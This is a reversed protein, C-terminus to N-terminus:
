KCINPREKCLTDLRTQAETSGLKLAKTYWEFAKRFDQIDKDYIYGLNFHVVRDGKKAAKTFWEVAKKFNQKVGKGHHYMIGLNNQARVSGKKAAKEYWYLAKKFDQKVGNGHHYMSGLNNQALSFGKKAAKEYWYFADAYNKENKYMFGLNNQASVSGKKAAEKFWYFAEASNKKVGKGHLYMLGLRNQAWVNEQNASKKYWEFAKKLDKEIGRGLRYMNGLSYQAKENGFKASEEFLEFAKKLDQKVGHGNVYSAGLNYKKIAAEREAKDKKLKENYSQVNLTPQVENIIKYDYKKEKYSLGDLLLYDNTIKFNMRINDTLMNEKFVKAEEIPVLIYGTFVFNLYSGGKIKYYFREKEADYDLIDFRFDSYGILDVISEWYWRKKLDQTINLRKEYTSNINANDNLIKNKKEEWQKYAKNYLKKQEELFLSLKTEFDKDIVDKKENWKELYNSKRVNFDSEKEFEGKALIEKKPYEKKVPKEGFDEINPPTIPVSKIKSMHERQTAILYLQKKDNVLKEIQKYMPINDTTGSEMYLMNELLPNGKSWVIQEFNNSQQLLEQALVLRKYIKRAEEHWPFSKLLEELKKIKLNPKDTFNIALIKNLEKKIYLNKISTKASTLYYHCGDSKIYSVYDELAVANKFRTGDETKIKAIEVKLNKDIYGRFRFYNSYQHKGPSVSITEIENFKRDAHYGRGLGLFGISYLKIDASFRMTTEITETGINNITYYITAGYYDYKTNGGTKYENVSYSGNGNSIINKHTTVSSTESKTDTQYNINSISLNYKPNSCEKGNHELLKNLEDNYKDIKKTQPKSLSTTKTNDNKDESCGTFFLGVILATLFLNRM